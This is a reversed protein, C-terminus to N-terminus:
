PHSSNQQLTHFHAALIQYTEDLHQPIVRIEGIVTMYNTDGAWRPVLHMHLHEAIGAGAAAGLNLGINFGHPRFARQLIGESLATLEFLEGRQQPTLQTLSAVHAQPIIMLHGNNYPYRNLMVFATEGRWLILNEADRQQRSKDCFICGEEKEGMIYAMRWPAWVVDGM